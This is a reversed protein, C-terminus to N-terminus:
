FIIQAQVRYQMGDTAGGATQQQHIGTIDAQLKLDHKVFYYSLAGQTETRSNNSVARDPDAHNYRFAAQFHKPIIFYGAQAYYGQATQVYTNGDANGWFYEGQVSAGRWKFALDASATNTLIKEGTAFKAGNNMWGSSTYFNVNNTQGKTFTNRYYDAGVSFLPPSTNDLDGESYAMPGLPNLVLRAAFANNNTTNLTSQGAGGFWGVNYDFLGKAVNGFFMAGTDFAPKFLDTVFSRDVFEQAGSSILEQRSYPVKDQGLELNAAHDFCSFRYKMWADEVFKFSNADPLNVQLKYTLDKTYAHGQLWFKARRIRWQSVDAANDNDFFTYRVQIRAGISLAFKEDDSMLTFGKGIKYHLPSSKQVEKYDAETIVGKEKLVDELTKASVTQGIFATALLAAGAAVFKKKV